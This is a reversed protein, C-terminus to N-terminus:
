IAVSTTSKKLTNARHIAQKLADGSIQLTRSKWWVTESQDLKRFGARKGAYPLLKRLLPTHAPNVIIMPKLKRKRNQRMGTMLHQTGTARKFQGRGTVFFRKAAGQHTSLKSRTKRNKKPSGISKWQSPSGSSFGKNQHLIQSVSPQNNNNNNILHHVRPSLVTTRLQHTIHRLLLLM